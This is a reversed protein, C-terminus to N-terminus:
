HRKIKGKLNDFTEEMHTRLGAWFQGDSSILRSMKEKVIEMRDDLVDLEKKYKKKLEEGKEGAKEIIKGGFM